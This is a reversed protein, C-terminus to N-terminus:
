RRGRQYGELWREDWNIGGGGEMWGVHGGEGEGGGKEKLDEGGEERGGDDVFEVVM